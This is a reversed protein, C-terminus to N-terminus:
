PTHLGVVHDSIDDNDYKRPTYGKSKLHPFAVDPLFQFKTEVWHTDDSYPLFSYVSVCMACM